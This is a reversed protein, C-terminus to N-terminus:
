LLWAYFAKIADVHCAIAAEPIQYVPDVVSGDCATCSCLRVAQKM